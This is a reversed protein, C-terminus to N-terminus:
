RRCPGSWIGIRLRSKGGRKRRRWRFRSPCLGSQMVSRAGPPEVEKASVPMRPSAHSYPFRTRGTSGVATETAARRLGGGPTPRHADLLRTARHAGPICADLLPRGRRALGPVNEMMVAWPKTEAVLRAMEGLLDNRSDPRRSKLTLNTFGQCPPMRGVACDPYRGGTHMTGSRPRHLCGAPVYLSRSPQRHLHEARAERDRRGGASLIGSTQSGCEFRRRWCVSRRRM